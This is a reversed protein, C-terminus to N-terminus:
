DDTDFSYGIALMMTQRSYDDGVGFEQTYLSYRLEADWADGLPRSLSLTLANRNDEDVSFNADLEIPDEYRTRQLQGNISLLFGLPLPATVKAGITHRTLNQGYSNSRNTSFTYGTNVLAIGRWRLKLAGTHFRDQRNDSGLVLLGFPDQIFVPINFDRALWTYSLTANLNAPLTATLSAAASPGRSNANANPKYIFHRWGAQAELVVSNTAIAIAAASGGRLYDQRSTHESRDKLDASLGLELPGILWRRVSLGIQTLLTDADRENAFLKGGQSLTLFARTDPTNLQADINAFYRTLFDARADDGARRDVNDDYEAGARLSGTLQRSSEQAHAISPCASSVLLTATLTRTWTHALRQNM